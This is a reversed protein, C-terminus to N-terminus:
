VGVVPLKHLCFMAFGAIPSYFRCIVPPRGRGRLDNRQDKSQDIDLEERGQYRRRTQFEIDSLRPVWSFFCTPPEVRRNLINWPDKHELCIYLILSWCSHSRGNEKWYECFGGTCRLIFLYISIDTYYLFLCSLYIFLLGQSSMVLLWDPGRYGDVVVQKASQEDEDRGWFVVWGGM